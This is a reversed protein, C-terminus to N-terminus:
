HRPVRVKDWRLGLQQFQEQVQGDHVGRTGPGLEAPFGCAGGVLGDGLHESPDGISGASWGWRQEGVAEVPSKDLDALGYAFGASRPHADEFGGAVIPPSIM